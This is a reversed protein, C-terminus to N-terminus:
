IIILISCPFFFSFTLSFSTLGIFLSANKSIESPRHTWHASRFRRYSVADHEFRHASHGHRFAMSINNGRCIVQLACRRTRRKQTHHFCCTNQTAAVTAAPQAIMEDRPLAVVKHRMKRTLHPFIRYASKSNLFGHRKAHRFDRNDSRM